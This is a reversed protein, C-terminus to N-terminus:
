AAPTVRRLLWSLLAHAAAPDQATFITFRAFPLTRYGRAILGQIDDLDLKVAM